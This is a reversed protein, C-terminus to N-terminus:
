QFVQGISQTMKEIHKITEHAKILEQVESVHTESQWDKLLFSQSEELDEVRKPVDDEQDKSSILHKKSTTSREM